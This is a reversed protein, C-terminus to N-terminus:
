YTKENLVQTLANKTKNLRKYCADYCFGNGTEIFSNDFSCIIELLFSFFLTFINKLFGAQTSELSISTIPPDVKPYYCACITYRELACLTNKSRKNSSKSITFLYILGCLTFLVCLTNKKKKKISTIFLFQYGPKSLSKKKKEREVNVLM